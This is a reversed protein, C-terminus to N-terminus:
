GIVLLTTDDRRMTGDARAAEVMRRYAALAAPRLRVAKGGYTEAPTAGVLMAEPPAGPCLGQRNVRVFPRALHWGPAMAAFTEPDLVGSPRLGRAGQWRALAAATAAYLAQRTAPNMPQDILFPLESGYERRMVRSGVPTTLIDAISQRLHDDGELSAGTEASMGRM